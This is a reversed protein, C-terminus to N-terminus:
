CFILTTRPVLLNALAMHAAGRELRLYSAPHLFRTQAHGRKEALMKSIALFHYVFLANLLRSHLLLTDDWWAQMLTEVLLAFVLTGYGMWTMSKYLVAAVIMQAHKDSQAFKGTYASIPLGNRVLWVTDVSFEGM